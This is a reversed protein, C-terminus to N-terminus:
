NFARFTASCGAAVVAFVSSSVVLVISRLARQQISQMIHSGSKKELRDWVPEDRSQWVVKKRLAFIEGAIERFNSCEDRRV